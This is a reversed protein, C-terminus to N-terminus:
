DQVRLPYKSVRITWRLMGSKESTRTAPLMWWFSSANISLLAEWPWQFYGLTCWWSFASSNPQRKWKPNPSVSTQRAWLLSFCSSRMPQWRIWSSHSPGSMEEASARAWGPATITTYSSAATASTAIFHGRPVCFTVPRAIDWSISLRTQNKRPAIWLRRQKLKRWLSSILPM